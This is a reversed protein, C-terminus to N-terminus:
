SRPQAHDSVHDHRRLRDDAVAKYSCQQPAALESILLPTAGATAQRKRATPLVVRLCAACPLSNVECAARMYCMCNNNVNHPSTQVKSSTSEALAACPGEAYSESSRPASFNWLDPRFSPLLGPKAWLLGSPAQDFTPSTFPSVQWKSGCFGQTSAQLLKAAKDGRLCYPQQLWPAAEERPGGM